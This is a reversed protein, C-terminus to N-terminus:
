SAQAAILSTFHCIADTVRPYKTTKLFLHLSYFALNQRAFTAGVFGSSRNCRDIRSYQDALAIPSLNELAYLLTLYDISRFRSLSHPSFLM